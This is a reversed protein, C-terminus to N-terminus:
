DKSPFFLMLFIKFFVAIADAKLRATTEEAVAASKSKEVAGSPVTTNALTIKPSPLGPVPESSVSIVAGEVVKLRTSTVATPLPSSPVVALTAVTLYVNPLPATNPSSRDVVANNFAALPPAPANETVIPDPAIVQATTCPPAIPSLVIVISSVKPVSPSSSSAIVKV